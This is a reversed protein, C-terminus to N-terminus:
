SEISLGRSVQFSQNCPCIKLTGQSGLLYFEVTNMYVQLLDQDEEFGEATTFDDSDLMGSGLLVNVRVASAVEVM